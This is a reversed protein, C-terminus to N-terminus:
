SRLALFNAPNGILVKDMFEDGLARRARPIFRAPLYELGPMGGLEIFRSRRAVDAGMLFRSADAGRELATAMCELLTSEPWYQFRAMGNRWLGAGAKILGARVDTWAADSVDAGSDDSAMGHDIERTFRAVLEEISQDLIWHGEEDHGQHHVGTTHVVQLGTASAIDRVGLPDRGIGIPTAEVMADIGAAKMRAAERGSADRDVLDEGPLLRSSQFLHEHYDVCPRGRM